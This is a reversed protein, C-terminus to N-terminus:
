GRAVYTLIAWYHAFSGAMVFLHWVEHSGFVKSTGRPWKLGYVVAGLTYSIGGALLWLFFRASGAAILPRAIVVAIWGMGIYLVTSLWRPSRRMWFIKQSVGLVALTWVIALLWVGLRGRLITLCIPTYSGAILVYIMVHDVRQFHGLGRESLTSAHYLASVCYMLVLSAGFISVATIDQASGRKSAAAILVILGIISLIAGLLHTLASVPERLRLRM